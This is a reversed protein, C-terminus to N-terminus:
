RAAHEALKIMSKMKSTTLAIWIRGIPPDPFPAARGSPPADLLDHSRRIDHTRVCHRLSQTMSKANVRKLGKYRRVKYLAPKAMGRQLGCGDIAIYYTWFLARKAARM